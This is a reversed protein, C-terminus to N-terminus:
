EGRLQHIQLLTFVYEPEARLISERERGALGGGQVVESGERNLVNEKRVSQVGQPSLLGKLGMKHTMVKIEYKRHEMQKINIGQKIWKLHM